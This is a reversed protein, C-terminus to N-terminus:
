KGVGGSIRYTHAFNSVYRSEDDSLGFLTNIYRDVGSIEALCSKHKYEYATQKTGVYHKTQELQYELKAALVKVHEYNDLEPIRFGELEKRTIHWCDSVCVWYWWFLSSNLLCLAYSATNADQTSFTKYESGNRTEFFAKIWFTARMNLSVSSDGAAFLSALPASHTTVKEYVTQDLVNGIKPIFGNCVYDNKIVNSKGFLSNRESKYWYTYNSTFITPEAASKKAFIITLKQHVATFLCDPRDSYNLLYQEPVLDFLINRIKSMRPTAVYSLPIIFGFAGGKALHHAANALVNAYINGYRVDYFAESKCDEVYPPNGVIIDFMHEVFGSNAVYDISFFSRNLIRALGVVMAHGFRHLVALLLRLKAIAISDGNIDNGFITAVVRHVESRSVEAQHQALFELKIDLAGLLFEGSGCTPDFVTKSVVVECPIGSLSDEGINTPALIGTVFKFSNILIFRVVDTPTYYVGRSKRISEKENLSALRSQLEVYTCPKCSPAQSIDFGMVASIELQILQRESGDYRYDLYGKAIGIARQLVGNDMMCGRGLRM